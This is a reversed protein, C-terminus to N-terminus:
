TADEAERLIRDITATWKDLLGLRTVHRRRLKTWIWFQAHTPGVAECRDRYEDLLSTRGTRAGGPTFVCGTDPDYTM